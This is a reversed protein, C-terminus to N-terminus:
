RLRRPNHPMRLAPVIKSQPKPVLEVPIGLAARLREWLAAQQPAPISDTAWHAALFVDEAAQLANLAHENVPMGENAIVQVARDDWLQRMGYDKWFQVPLRKGLHKECWDGIKTVQEHDLGPVGGRDVKKHCARATVIRVDIGEALMQKVRDVMEPIPEGVSGDDKWGEYKALTGDLDVGVWGHQQKSM